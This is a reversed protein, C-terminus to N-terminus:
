SKRAKGLLVVFGRCITEFSGVTLALFFLSLWNVEGALFMPDMQRVVGFLDLLNDGVVPYREYSILTETIYAGWWWWKDANLALVFNQVPHPLRPFLQVILDGAQAANAFLWILVYLTECIAWVSAKLFGAASPVSMLPALFPVATIQGVFKQGLGVWPQYSFVGLVVLLLIVIWEISKGFHGRIGGGQKGFATQARGMVGGPFSGTNPSAAGFGGGFGGDGMPNASRMNPPVFGGDGMPNASRMNPPVSGGDGMPNASRMNPPVFGGDGMPNASRMNPPTFVKNSKSGKNSAAM